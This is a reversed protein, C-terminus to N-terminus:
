NHSTYWMKALDAIELDPLDTHAEWFYRCFAWVIDADLPYKDLMNAELVNKFSIPLLCLSTRPLVYALQVEPEVPMNDNEAIMKTDWRPIYEVLDKFLPPYNYNYKWSWDCCGITYYKMVWELGELYNNCINRIFYESSDTHFLMKYYRKRWGYQFPDIYNEIDRMKIPINDLKEMEDKYTFHRRTLKDRKKYEEKILEPEMKAIWDIFAFVNNWLIDGNSTLRRPSNPFIMNKYVSLLYHIGGTRINVAPFHPLFDNGLFFCMFIYDQMLGDNNTKFKSLNGIMESEIADGLNNIDLVYAENPELDSNISKIFEPTERYLVINKCLNIHNLCLMILDADLGYIVVNYDLINNDRMYQFMKHEGEGAEDSTSVIIKKSRKFKSKLTSGLNKMFTTGPTIACKDWTKKKNGELREKINTLLYSKYRRTRQQEMKAVPAVGDFAIYIVKQPSITKIYERLKIYVRNILEKEFQQENKYDELSIERLSDYIISNSDLLLIDPKENNEFKKMIQSHSKIIYTFYSPIGM